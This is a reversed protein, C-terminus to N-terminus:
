NSKSLNIHRQEIMQNFDSSKQLSKKLDYNEKFALIYKDLCDFYDKQYDNVLSKYDEVITEYEQNRTEYELCKIQYDQSLIQYGHTLSLYEKIKNELMLNLKNIEENKNKLEIEKNQLELSHKKKLESIEQNYDKSIDINISLKPGEKIETNKLSNRFELCKQSPHNIHKELNNKNLFTKKCYQCINSM